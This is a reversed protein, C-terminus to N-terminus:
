EITVSWDIYYNIIILLFSGRYVFSYTKIQVSWEWIFWSFFVYLRTQTVDINSFM